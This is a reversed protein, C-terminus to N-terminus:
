RINRTTKKQAEESVELAATAVAYNQQLDQNNVSIMTSIGSLKNNLQDIAIRIQDLFANAENRSFYGVGDGNLVEEPSITHSYCSASIDVERSDECIKAKYPKTLDFDNSNSAGFFYELIANGDIDFSCKGYFRGDLTYTLGNPDSKLKYKAKSSFQKETAKPNRMLRKITQSDLFDKLSYRPPPQPELDGVGWNSYTIDASAVVSAGCPYDGTNDIFFISWRRHLWLSRPRSLDKIEVYLQPILGNCIRNLPLQLGNDMYLRLLAPDISLMQNTLGSDYNLANASFSYYIDNFKRMAENLAAAENILDNLMAMQRYTSQYTTGLVYALTDMRRRAAATPGFVQSYHFFVERGDDTTFKVFEGHNGEARVYSGNATARYYSLTGDERKEFRAEPHIAQLNRPDCGLIEYYVSVAKLDDFHLPASVTSM